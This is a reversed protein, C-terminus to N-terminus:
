YLFSLKWKEDKCIEKQSTNVNELSDSGAPRCCLRGLRVNEQTDDNDYRVIFMCQCNNLDHLHRHIDVVHADQYVAHHDREQFCLVLDGVKVKHCESPELPISRERVGTRVNVWEDDEKRYGAFRVRAELEGTNVIRYTLFSAVDYWANDKTSRAEFASEHFEIIRDGQSKQSNEPANNSTSSSLDILLKLGAASSINEADPHLMKHKDWFWNQVQKWTIASKGARSTSCSFNMALDQCFEQGLSQQEIEKYLNEMEMIEALTFESSSDGGNRSGLKDM